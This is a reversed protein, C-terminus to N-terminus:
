TLRTRETIPKSLESIEHDLKEKLETFRRTGDLYTASDSTRIDPAKRYVNKINNSGCEHCLIEEVEGLILEEFFSGCNRCLFDKLIPMMGEKNGRQVM